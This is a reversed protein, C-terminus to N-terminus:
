KIKYGGEPLRERHATHCAACNGMLSRLSTGAKEMDGGKAADGIEKAAAQSQQSWKVADETKRKAWFGETKKFVEEMKAADKAVEDAMNGEINKRLSGSTAQATRMWGAYEKEEETQPIAALAAVVAFLLVLLLKM